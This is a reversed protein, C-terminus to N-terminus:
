GDKPLESLNRVSTYLHNTEAVALLRDNSIKQKGDMQEGEIVGILRAKVAVGPYAPNM